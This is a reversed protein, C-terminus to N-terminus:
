DISFLYAPKQEFKETFLDKHTNVLTMGKLSCGNQTFEWAIDTANSWSSSYTFEKIGSEKFAAILSAAGKTWLNDGNVDILANEKERAEQYLHYTESFAEGEAKLREGFEKYAARAASEEEETTSKNYAEHIERCTKYYNELKNM